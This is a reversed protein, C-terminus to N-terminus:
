DDITLERIELIAWGWLALLAWFYASAATLTAWPSPQGWVTMSGSWLLAVGAVLLLLDAVRRRRWPRARRVTVVLPLLPIWVYYVWGVPSLLLSALLLATWSADVAAEDDGTKAASVLTAVGVPVAAALGLPVVTWARSTFTSYLPVAGFTREFLGFFSANMYHGRWTIHLVQDLWEMYAGAGFVLLGAAILAAGVGLAWGVAAYRRRLLLYPLVLLLFPKLVAALGIWAGSASWRGQRAALWACVVPWMVLLSVQFTLVMSATPAWALLYVALAFAALRPLRFGTATVTRRGADVFAWASAAVWIGLALSASLWGLPILALHLHPLNLNRFGSIRGEVAGAPLTYLSQGAHYQQVSRHFIGFDQMHRRGATEQALTSYGRLIGWAVAALVLCTIAVVPPRLLAWWGEFRDAPPRRPAIM